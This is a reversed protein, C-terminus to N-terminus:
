KGTYSPCNKVCYWTHHEYVYVPASDSETNAAPQLASGSKVHAVSLAPNIGVIGVQKLGMVIGFYVAAMM